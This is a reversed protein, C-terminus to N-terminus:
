GRRILLKILHSNKYSFKIDAIRVKDVEEYGQYPVKETLIEEVRGKVLKKFEFAM